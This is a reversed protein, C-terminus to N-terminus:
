AAMLGPFGFAPFGGPSGYGGQMMADANGVKEFRGEGNDKMVSTQAPDMGNWNPRGGPLVVQVRNVIGKPNDAGMIVQSGDQLTFMANKQDFDSKSGNPHDIHPDGHVRWNRPEGDKGAQHCAGGLAGGIGNASLALAGSFGPGAFSAALSMSNGGGFSRGSGGPESIKVEEDKGGAWNITCGGPTTFSQGKQLEITGGSGGMGPGGMQQPGGMGNCPCGGPFGGPGGMGQMGPFGPGGMGPGQMGQGGMIGMLLGLLAGVAQMAQPNMQGLQGMGMMPNGFGGGLGGMPLGGFDGLGESGAFGDGPGGMGLGASLGLGMGLGGLLSGLANGAPGRAGLAPSSTSLSAALSMSGLAM